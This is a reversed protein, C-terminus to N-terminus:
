QLYIQAKKEGASDVNDRILEKFNLFHMGTRFNWLEEDAWVVDLERHSCLAHIVSEPVAQCRGCTASEIIM